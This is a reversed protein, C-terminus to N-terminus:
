CCWRWASSSRGPTASRSRPGPETLLSVVRGIFVPIAADLVATVSGVVFLAILPERGPACSALLLRALGKPPPAEPPLATPRLLDEFFSFVSMPRNYNMRVRVFARRVVRSKGTM